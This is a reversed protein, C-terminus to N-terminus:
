LRKLTVNIKPSDANFFFDSFSAPKGASDGRPSRKAPPIHSSLFGRM